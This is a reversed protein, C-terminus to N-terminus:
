EGTVRLGMEVALRIGEKIGARYDDANAVPSPAQISDIALNLKSMAESLTRTRGAIETHVESQSDILKKLNDLRETIPDFSLVTEVSRNGTNAIAVRVTSAERQILQKLDQIANLSASGEQALSNTLRELLNAVADVNGGTPRKALESYGNALGTLQTVILDLRENVKDFPNAAVTLPTKPQAPIKDNVMDKKEGQDNKPNTIEDLIKTLTFLKGPRGGGSRDLEDLETLTGNKKLKHIASTITGQSMPAKHREKSANILERSSCKYEVGRSHEYKNKIYDTVFDTAVSMVVHLERELALYRHHNNGIKSTLHWIGAQFHCKVVGSLGTGGKAFIRDLADEAKQRSDYVGQKGCVCRYDINVM